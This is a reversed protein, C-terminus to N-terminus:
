DKHRLSIGVVEVAIGLVLLSVGAWTEIAFYMLGAGVLMLLAAVPRRIPTKRLM